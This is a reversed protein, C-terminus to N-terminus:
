VDEVGGDGPGKTDNAELQNIDNRMNEMEVQMEMALLENETSIDLELTHFGDYSFSGSSSM